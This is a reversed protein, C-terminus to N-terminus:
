ILGGNQIIQNTISESCVCGHFDYADVNFNTIIELSDHFRCYKGNCFIIRGNSLIFVLEQNEMNFAIDLINGDIMPAEKPYVNRYWRGRKKNDKTYEYYNYTQIKKTGNTCAIVNDDHNVVMIKNGVANNFIRKRINDGTHYISIISNNTAVAIFPLNNFCDIGIIRSAESNVSEYKGSRINKYQVKRKNNEVFAVSNDSMFCAIKINKDKINTETIEKTKLDYLYLGYTENNRLIKNGYTSIKHFQNSIFHENFLESKKNKINYVWTDKETEGLIFEGTESLYINEVFDPCEINKIRKKSDLDWLQIIRNQNTIEYSLTLAFKGNGSIAGDKLVTVGKSLICFIENAKMVKLTGDIMSVAKFEDNEIQCIVGDSKKNKMKNATKLSILDVGDVIQKFAHKAHNNLIMKCELLSFAIQRNNYYFYLIDDKFILKRLSDSLLNYDNEKPNKLTDNFNWTEKHEFVYITRSQGSGIAFLYKDFFVFNSITDNISFVYPSFEGTLSFISVAGRSFAALFSNDLSFQLVSYLNIKNMDKGITVNDIFSKNLSIRSKMKKSIDPLSIGRLDLYSYDPTGCYESYPFCDIMNKILISVDNRNKGFTHIRDALGNWYKGSLNRIHEMVPIQLYQKNWYKEFDNQKTIWVAALYDRFIQHTFSYVFDDQNLLRTENVLFDIANGILIQPITYDRFREQLPYIIDEDTQINEICHQIIKRCENKNKNMCFSSEFSYALAPLIEFIIQYAQQIKQGDIGDREFLMAIQAVYYNHLLDTSNNIPLKWDLCEENQYKDIIPSIEKYMTVMMANSLLQRLTFTNKITSWELDSFICKLQEDKLPELLIKNYGNMTYSSSFDTRSSVVIQIGKNLFNITKLENIYHRENKGDIENLGDILLILNPLSYKNRCFNDFKEENGNWLISSCYKKISIHMTALREIPIYLVTQNSKECLHLLMTTKGMGGEAMLLFHPIDTSWSKKLLDEFDNKDNGKIHPFLDDIFSCTSIYSLNYEDAKKKENSVANSVSQNLQFTFEDKKGNDLDLIPYKAWGESFWTFAKVTVTYTTEDYEGFLITANSKEEKRFEGAQLSYLYRIKQVSHDHEHGALWLSVNKSYLLTNLHKKEDQLLSTFPYHTILITPKTENITSLVKQLLSTGLILDYAEQNETYTLTSDVHLINFDPTEINFHPNLPDTYFKMRNGDYIKSLFELFDKKGNAITNLDDNEIIGYEPDYYGRRQFCIRKIAEDRGEANRDVDHNGPVIFLRDQKIGVTSCLNLLYTAMEDTFNNPKANATRIDGTCFIYDCFINERKLFKPLEERLLVTSMNENNFHLDSIHMWRIM